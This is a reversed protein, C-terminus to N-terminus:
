WVSHGSTLSGRGACGRDTAPCVVVNAADILVLGCRQGELRWLAVQWRGLASAYGRRLSGVDCGLDSATAVAAEDIAAVLPRMLAAYCEATSLQEFLRKALLDKAAWGRMTFAEIRLLGHEVFPRADVACEEVATIVPISRM